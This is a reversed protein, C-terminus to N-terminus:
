RGRSESEIEARLKAFRRDRPGMLVIRSDKLFYGTSEIVAYGPPLRQELEAQYDETTLIAAKPYRSLFQELSPRAKVKWFGSRVSWSSDNTAVLGSPEQSLEYIPRSAYFVWSSELGGFSAVAVDDEIADLVVRSTQEKGVSVTGYGFLGVCFFLAMGSFIPVIWQHRNKTMAYILGAGGLIPIVGLTALWAQSPLYQATAWGGGITILLGALLLGGVAAAFWKQDGKSRSEAFQCLYTATLVALAPYCPTVYSPLKTQAITFAVVQIGVWCLMLCASVRTGSMESRSRDMATGGNKLLGIAVPGWFVSWPFFGVLIAVPYFWIGGSHNELSETARGFHEGLFFMRTFDGDTRQDVMIYWPLAVALVLLAGTFPRMAWLTRLFHSPQFTRFCNEIFRLVTGRLGGSSDSGRTPLAQILMFLGIMAMPLLFGVPGKALVGLGLMLYMGAVYWRNSPFWVNERVLRLEGNKRAFTGLVYIMLAMTGCFILVSDPTAARAAVDFMLSTSLAIASYFAIKSGLLRRALAYTAFTTGTALAASWFRAAFENVGFISYASMILWYLLVPKQHRLEDNFIPVVWQGQALMEAACGANRPEDRDWLQTEGLNFFYVVTAIGLLIIVHWFTERM